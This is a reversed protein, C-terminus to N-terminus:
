KGYLTVDKFYMVTNLEKQFAEQINGLAHRGVELIVPFMMM